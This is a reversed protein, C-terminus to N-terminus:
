RKTYESFLMKLVRERFKSNETFWRNVTDFDIKRFRRMYQCVDIDVERCISTLMAISKRLTGLKIDIKVEIVRLKSFSIIKLFIRVVAILVILAVTVSAGYDMNVDWLANRLGPELYRYPSLVSRLLDEGQLGMSKLEEISVYRLPYGVANIAVTGNDPCLERLLLTVLQRNPNHKPTVRIVANIFLTGDGLVVVTSKDVRCMVGVIRDSFLAIARCLKRSRPGLVLPSFYSLVIRLSKGDVVSIALRTQRVMNKSDIGIDLDLARLISSSFPGEDAVIINYHWFRTLIMIALIDIPPLPREPSILLAIGCGESPQQLLHQLLYHFWNEVIVVNYGLSQIFEVLDSTGDWESNLPSAGGYSVLEPRLEFCQFVIITLVLAIVLKKM